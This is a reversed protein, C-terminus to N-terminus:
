RIESVAGFALAEVVASTEEGGRKLAGGIAYVGGFASVGGLGHRPTRMPLGESWTDTEPAYLWTEAYVGGEGEFFEGGFACIVGATVGSALGGQGQPLPALTEWRDLKPDYVEHAMSNGGGVFRGGIVHMRGEYVEATASNRPTPLPAATKWQGRDLVYHQGTDGHDTWAANAEGNPTRGGCIHLGSSLSATVAEGMPAPLEPAADWGNSGLVWGTRQMVWVAEPGMTEFGALAYLQGEHSQLHPHHRAVPLKPGERWAFDEFNFIFTRDTPGTIRGNEAVFGGSQWIEENHFTPYIEQVALPLPKTELCKWEWNMEKDAARQTHEGCAAIPLAGLGALVSRRNMDM